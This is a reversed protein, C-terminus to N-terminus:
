GLSNFYEDIDKESKLLVGRGTKYDEKAEKAWIDYRSTEVTKRLSTRVLDSFSAYFGNKVLDDAQAKLQSPLSINITTMCSNYLLCIYNCYAISRGINILIEKAQHHVKKGLAPSTLLYRGTM